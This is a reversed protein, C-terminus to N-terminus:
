TEAILLEDALSAIEEIAAALDEAGRAQQRAATAAQAAAGSTEEAATAIQETGSLVEGCSKLVADAGGLIENVGAKISLMGEEISALREDIGANKRVETQSTAAILEVDRRVALIQTQVNRVVDKVRGANEASERALNRIDASVVAFGRGQEGARAGEVSGSVALMNTQIAVLAIGDVFKEIRSGSKELTAILESVDRSDQAAQLANKLLQQVGERNAKLIPLLRDARESAAAAATKSSVAAKEIQRMASSSQQTAAAQAQAGRNIQDLAVLIETAAGSLEQVTASLEEAASALQEASHEGTESQLAEALEALSEATKKSQDLATSQQQLARQSEMTAASQEEAASAVQEAGRQAERSGTDAEISAVLVAQANEAMERVDSRLQEISAIMDRGRKAEVQATEASTKISKAIRRVDEAITDAIERVEKASKESTEALNRVEDAVVAFGRGHDGARAAEIAANLALLDTQDAIDGVTVTIASIDAAQTELQAVVDVAELQRAANDQVSAAFSDIQTAFEGLQTQLTDTKQRWSEARTRAQAFIAGLSGVAAQSEHAAGAAEEAAASIQM